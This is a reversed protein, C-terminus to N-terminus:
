KYNKEHNKSENIFVKHLELPSKKHKTKAKLPEPELEEEAAKRKAELIMSSYGDM